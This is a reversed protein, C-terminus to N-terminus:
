IEEFIKHGNFYFSLVINLNKPPHPLFLTYFDKNEIRVKM